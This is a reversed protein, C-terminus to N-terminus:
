PPFRLGPTGSTFIRLLAAIAPILGSASLKRVVDVNFPWEPTEQVFRQYAVWGATASLVEEMRELRGQTLRDKLEHSVEVMHKRALDLEYNKASVM